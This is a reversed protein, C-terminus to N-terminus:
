WQGTRGAWRALTRGDGSLGLCAVAGGVSEAHVIGNRRKLQPPEVGLAGYAEVGESSVAREDEDEAGTGSRRETAPGAVDLAEVLGVAAAAGEEDDVDGFGMGLVLPLEGGVEGAAVEADPLGARELLAAGGRAQYGGFQVETEGGEDVAHVVGGRTGEGGPGLSNINHVAVAAEGVGATGAGPAKLGLFGFSGEAPQEAVCLRVGPRPALGESL